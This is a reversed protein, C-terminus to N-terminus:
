RKDIDFFFLKLRLRFESAESRPKRLAFLKCLLGPFIHDGCSGAGLGLIHFFSLFSYMQVKPLCRVCFLSLQLLFAFSGASLAPHQDDCCPSSIFVSIINFPSCDFLKAVNLNSFCVKELAVNVFHCLNVLKQSLKVVKSFKFYIPVVDCLLDASFKFRVVAM